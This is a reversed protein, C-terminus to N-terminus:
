NRGGGGPNGARNERLMQEWWRSTGFPLANADREYYESTRRSRVRSTCHLRGHRRWCSRGAVSQVAISRPGPAQNAIQAAASHMPTAHSATTMGGIALAVVLHLLWSKLHVPVGGSLQCATSRHCATSRCCALVKEQKLIECPQSLRLSPLTQLCSAARRARLVMRRM